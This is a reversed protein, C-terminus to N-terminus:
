DFYWPAAASRYGRYGYPSWYGAVKQVQLSMSVTDAPHYDLRFGPLFKAISDDDDWLASPNHLMGLNLTLHLKDSIDYMMTSNLLGVSGSRGGGSFFSVAYSHSWSIRSMDLLSWPSSGPKVGIGSVSSTAAPAGSVTSTEQAFVGSITVLALAITFLIRKM